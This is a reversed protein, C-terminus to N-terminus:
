RDGLRRLQASQSVRLNGEVLSTLDLARYDAVGQDAQGSRGPDQHLAPRDARTWLFVRRSRVIGAFQAQVELVPM